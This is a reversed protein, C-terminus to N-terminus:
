VQESASTSSAPRSSSSWRRGKATAWPARPTAGCSATHACEVTNNQVADAVALGPVIEGAAFVTIRFRGDTLAAVRKSMFDAAGYITDLSKPFSSACRWRIEPASQALAPAPLGTATVAPLALAPGAGALFKRRDM